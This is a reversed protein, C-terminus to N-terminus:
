DRNVLITKTVEKGKRLLVVVYKSLASNERVYSYAAMQTRVPTGNISVLSDGTQLGYTKALYSNNRVTGVTYAKKGDADKVDTLRLERLYDGAKSSLDHYDKTGVVFGADNPLAVTKEVNKNAALLAIEAETLASDTSTVATEPGAETKPEDAKRPPHMEVDKGFWEFVATEGNISKLRGHYPEDDYPYTLKAGVALILEDRTPKVTDDKYKVVVRGTDAPAMAIATVKVYDTIPKETVPAPVDSPKDVIVPKPPEFGNLPVTQLKKYYDWESVKVESKNITGAAASILGAYHPSDHAVYNGAKVRQWMQWGQFGALAALGASGFWFLGRWQRVHIQMGLAAM